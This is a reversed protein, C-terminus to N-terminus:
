QASPNLVINSILKFRGPLTENFFKDKKEQTKLGPGEQWLSRGALFGVCGAEVSIELQQVFNNFDAGRTLIIWPIKKSELLKTVKQANELSGPYELKYVDPYIGHNLFRELSRVVRSSDNDNDYNVIELFFPMGAEKAEEMVKKTIALQKLATKYGPNFYVLLKVGTAGMQKLEQATYAIETIREGGEDKYGTKEMPLLFPKIEDRVIQSYAPFGYDLDILAGSMQDYVTEIIQKKMEIATEKSFPDIMKAFSGRHDFALMLYKGDKTFIQTDM